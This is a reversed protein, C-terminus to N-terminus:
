SDQKGILLRRLNPPTCVWSIAVAGSDRIDNEKSHQSASHKITFHVLIFIILLKHTHIHYIYTYM